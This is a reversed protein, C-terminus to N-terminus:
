RWSCGCTLWHHAGAGVFVVGTGSGQTGPGGARELVLGWGQPVLAAGRGPSNGSVHLQHLMIIGMPSLSLCRVGHGRGEFGKQVWKRTESKRSGKGTWDQGRREHDGHSRDPWIWSDPRMSIKSSSEAPRGQGQSAEHGWPEASTPTPGLDTDKVRQVQEGVGM